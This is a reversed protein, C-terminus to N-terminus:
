GIVYIQHYSSSGSPELISAAFDLSDACEPLFSWRYLLVPLVINQFIGRLPLLTSVAFKSTRMYKSFFIFQKFNFTSFQGSIWLALILTSVAINLVEQANELFPDVVYFLRYSSLELSGIRFNWFCCNGLQRRM